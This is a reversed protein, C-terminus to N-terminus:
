LILSLLWNNSQWFEIRVILIYSSALVFLALIYREPGRTMKKGSDRHKKKGCAAAAMGRWWGPPAHRNEALKENSSHM